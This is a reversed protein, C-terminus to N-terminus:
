KYSIIIGVNEILFIITICKIVYHYSLQSFIIGNIFTSDLLLYIILIVSSQWFLVSFTM